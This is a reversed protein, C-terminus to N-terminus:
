DIKLVKIYEGHAERTSGVVIRKIGAASIELQGTVEIMEGSKAQGTYTATFCIVAQIDDHEVWFVAPYDFGHFDDKVRTQITIMGLKTNKESDQYIDDVIMNLDVKRQNIMVKNFKRQEHWIYETLTLDCDRRQYSELWASDTLPQCDGQNILTAVIARTQHFVSRGYFVLDIDSASNQAGILLSGTVGVNELQLGNRSFQDCLIRLDQEVSDKPKNNLLTVLRHQPQHHKTIDTVAVAHLEADLITSYYLYQPYNKALLDNAQGTSVKRWQGQERVYRLFCLVRNAEIRETVVAFVLGERTEIFDKARYM